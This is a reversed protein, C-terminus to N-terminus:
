SDSLPVSGLLSYLFQVILHEPPQQADEVIGRELLALPSMKPRM